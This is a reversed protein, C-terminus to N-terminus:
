LMSCNKCRRRQRSWIALPLPIKKRLCSSMRDLRKLFIETFSCNFSKRTSSLNVLCFNIIIIIAEWIEFFLLTIMFEWRLQMLLAGPLHRQCCSYKIVKPSKLPSTISFCMVFNTCLYYMSAKRYICWYWIHLLSFM